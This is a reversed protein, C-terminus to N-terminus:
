VDTQTGLAEIYSESRALPLSEGEERWQEVRQKVLLPLRTRGISGPFPAVARYGNAWEKWVEDLRAKAVPWAPGLMHTLEGDWRLYVPELTGKFADPTETCWYGIAGPHDTEHWGWLRGGSGDISVVSYGTVPDEWATVAM